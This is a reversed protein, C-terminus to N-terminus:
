KLAPWKMIDEARPQLGLRIRDNSERSELPLPNKKKLVVPQIDEQPMPSTEPHKWHNMSPFVSSRM